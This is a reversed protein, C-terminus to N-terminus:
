APSSQVFATLAHIISYRNWGDAAAQVASAYFAAFDIANERGFSGEVFTALRAMQQSSSGCHGNAVALRTLKGLHLLLDTFAEKVHKTADFTHKDHWTGDRPGSIAYARAAEEGFAEVERLAVQLPTLVPYLEM